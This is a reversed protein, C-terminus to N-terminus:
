VSHHAAAKGDHSSRYASSSVNLLIRPRDYYKRFWPTLNRGIERENQRRESATPVRHTWPWVKKARLRSHRPTTGRGSKSSARSSESTSKKPTHAPTKLGKGSTQLGMPAHFDLESQEPTRQRALDSSSEDGAGSPTPSMSAQRKKPSIARDKASKGARAPSSKSSGM